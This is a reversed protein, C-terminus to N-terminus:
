REHETPTERGLATNRCNEVGSRFRTYRGAIIAERAERMLSLFYWLNHVTLLVVSTVENAVFLHRLVARSYVACTPCGCGEDLPRDDDAFRANKISLKGQNTFLTGNRANRTPLVCDFLDVGRAVSEIIDIPTGAGMLYRPKDKPLEVTSVETM